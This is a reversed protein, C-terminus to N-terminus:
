GACARSEELKGMLFEVLSTRLSYSINPFEVVMRSGTESAKLVRLVRVDELQTVAGDLNMHLTGVSGIALECEGECQLAVGGGSVNESVGRVCATGDSTEFEGKCPLAIAVRLFRRAIGRLVQLELRVRHVESFNEFHVAVLAVGEENQTRVLSADMQYEREDIGQLRLGFVTGIESPVSADPAMEILAGSASVNRTVGLSTGHAHTMAVPWRYAVRAFARRPQKRPPSPPALTVRSGEIRRVVSSCVFHMRAVRYGIGLEVRGDVVLDLMAQEAEPVQVTLGEDDAEDVFVVIRGRRRRGLPTLHIKQGRSFSEDARAKLQVVLNEVGGCYSRELLIASGM